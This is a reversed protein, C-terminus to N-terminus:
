SRSLAIYVAISKIHLGLTISAAQGLLVEDHRLRSQLTAEVRFSLKLRNM